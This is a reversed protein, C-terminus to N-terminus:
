GNGNLKLYDINSYIFGDREVAIQIAQFITEALINHKKGNPSKIFYVKM